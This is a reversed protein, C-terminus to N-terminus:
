EDPADACRRDHRFIHALDGGRDDCGIGAGFPRCLPLVAVDELACEHAVADQRRLRRDADGGEAGGGGTASEAASYPSPSRGSSTRAGDSGRRKATVAAANPTPETVGEFLSCAAR